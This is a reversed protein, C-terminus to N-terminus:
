RLVVDHDDAPPGAPIAAATLAGRLAEAGHEDLALRGSSLRARRRPDLVVEAEREAHRPVLERRARELLRPPEARLHTTVRMPPACISTADPASSRSPPSSRIRARVIM